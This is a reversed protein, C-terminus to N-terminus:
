NLSKLLAALEPDMQEDEAGAAPAEQDAAPPADGTAPADTADLSALLADLDPDASAAAPPTEEAGASGDSAAAPEEQVPEDADVQAPTPAGAMPQGARREAPVWATTEKRTTDIKAQVAIRSGAAPKRGTGGAAALGDGNIAELGSLRVLPEGKHAMVGNIGHDRLLAAAQTNVLRETCPLAMTDGDKDVYYHFPLDGIALQGGPVALVCLALLAPHGWLMGRLGADRSFEEFAFSSVPDSKKGYPHRLMFRPGLLGLWSSQPLARLAEFAQRVLKHPPEKRDTFVDTDISTLVPAGAHAAVLAARGLLEAQPPTADFRYCAAIYTYGGDPDQSPQEVLLKYLGTEGLDSVSSLDAAFEEASVDFLHVQLQPGTELRRLLFDVGRWLSEVNQFDPQHLLARMADSLARDVAGVLADKQPSAQPVVFPGVISRLLGSVADDAREAVSPRGTLRAFDDLRGGAALTAGRARTRNSITSARLVSPDAWQQVEAAAKAYTGAANLRKRLGALEGFVAVSRYLEDPHFSELETIPVEVAAGDAGLPLRLTIDLRGVADDLTDFEVKLPKRGALALGTDLRGTLSGGSFDGLMAIRVPRKAAWTPPTTGLGAFDPTWDSSDSM